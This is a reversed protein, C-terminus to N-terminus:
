LKFRQKKNSKINIYVVFHSAKIAILVFNKVLNIYLITTCWNEDDFIWHIALHITEIIIAFTKVMSTSTWWM